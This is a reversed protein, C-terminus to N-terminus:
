PARRDDVILGGTRLCALLGDIGVGPLDKGGPTAAMPWWSGPAGQWLELVARGDTTPSVTIKALHLRGTQLCRDCGQGDCTPCPDPQPGTVADWLRLALDASHRPGGADIAARAAMALYTVTMVEDDSLDLMIRRKV